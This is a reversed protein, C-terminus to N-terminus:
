KRLGTINMSDIMINVLQKCISNDFVHKSWRNHWHLCFAGKLFTEFDYKIESDEFFIDSLSPSIPNEIWGADFWSCPLVLLDLPTNFNLDCEPFAFSNNKALIYEINKKFTECYPTLSIYIAGNPYDRKEWQYVCISSEYHYFLTDFSRLCFCDLDFWCGAYKYLLIYRVYDSYFSLNNNYHDQLQSNECIYNFFIDKTEHYLNFTKIEAFTSIQANFTNSTNNEVWLIIKHKKTPDLFINFYYFSLISYYHKENLDGHWYCHFIVGRNYDNCSLNKAIEITNDYDTHSTLLRM